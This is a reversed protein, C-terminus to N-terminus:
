FQEYASEAWKLKVDRLDGDYNKGFYKKCAEIYCNIPGNEPKKHEDKLTLSSIYAFVEQPEYSIQILDLINNERTFNRMAVEKLYYNNLRITGIIYDTYLAFRYLERSGFKDYYAMVMIIFFDTIYKSSRSDIYLKQYLERVKRVTRDSTEKEFLNQAITHYTDFFAFVSVGKYLPQRISFLHSKDESSDDEPIEQKNSLSHSHTFKRHSGAPYYCITNGHNKLPNDAFEEMASNYDSRNEFDKGKWRRIRWLAMDVLNDLYDEPSNRFLNSRSTQIDQWRRACDIRLANDNQIARLHVAKMVDVAAPQIGRNNQSDFFTFADDESETMIVCFKLHNFIDSINVSSPKGGLQSKAYELNSHINQRSLHHSFSFNLQQSYKILASDDGNLIYDILLISTLRQQGDVINMVKNSENKHIILTGMYYWCGPVSRSELFERWDDLLQGIKKNSWVYPRQYPPIQITYGKDKILQFLTEYSPNEVHIYDTM